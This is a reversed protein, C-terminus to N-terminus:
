LKPKVQVVARVTDGKVLGGRYRAWALVTLSDEEGTVSPGSSGDWPLFMEVLLAIGGVAAIVQGQSLRGM